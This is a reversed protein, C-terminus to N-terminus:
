SCVKAGGSQLLRRFGADRAQDINLMVTWGGFAGELFFPLFCLLNIHDSTYIIFIPSFFCSTQVEKDTHGQLSKRWRMAALALRRQQSNITPLADLISQSGWEYDEEQFFCVVPVHSLQEYYFIMCLMWKATFFVWQPPSRQTHAPKQLHSFVWQYSTDRRAVRRWTHATFSGNALQWPLWTNRM